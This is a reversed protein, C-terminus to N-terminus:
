KPVVDRRDIMQTLFCIQWSLALSGKKCGFNSFNGVFSMVPHRLLSQRIKQYLLPHLKAFLSDSSRWRKLFFDQIRLKGTESEVDGVVWYGHLGDEGYNSKGTDNSYGKSMMEVSTSEDSRCCNWYGNWPSSGNGWRSERSTIPDLRSLSDGDRCNGFVVGDSRSERGKMSRRNGNYTLSWDNCCGSMM